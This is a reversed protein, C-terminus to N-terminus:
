KKLKYGNPCKPKVSTVKKTLKGKVCTISIKKITAGKVEAEQKAKLEAVAKAAAAEEEQKVRLEQAAKAKAEAEQKVRLEEAAKAEAESKSVLVIRKYTIENNSYESRTLQIQAGITCVGKKELSLQYGYDSSDRIFDCIPLGTAFYRILIGDSNFRPLQVVTPKSEDVVYSDQLVQLDAVSKKPTGLATGPPVYKGDKINISPPYFYGSYTLDTKDTLVIWSADFTNTGNACDSVITGVLRILRDTIPGVNSSSYSKGEAWNVYGGSFNGFGICTGGKTPRFSVEIKNIGPNGGSYGIEYVIEDGPSYSAKENVIKIGLFRPPNASDAQAFPSAFLLFFTVFISVTRKMVWPYVNGRFSILTKWSIIQGNKLLLPEGLHLSRFEGAGNNKLRM